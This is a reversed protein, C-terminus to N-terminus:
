EKRQLLVASVIILGKVVYRAFPSIGLLNLINNIIGLILVGFLTGIVSGEGGFLNTGGIIVCAIADLEYFQGSNPSATNMRACVIIGAVASLVGSLVYVVNKYRSINIGSLYAVNPAGGIAVVYRGFVSRSYLLHGVIVTGLFILTPIPLLGLSGQGIQAFFPNTGFIPHGSTYWLALGRIMIMTGLTAIFPTVKGKTILVGNLLGMTAGVGLAVMIVAITGHAQFSLAVVGVLGVISGVSLDIGASLIVFTMGVAIVGIISVQRLINLLNTTTFFVPSAFSAGITISLFVIQVRYHIWIYQLIFFLTRFSFDKISITYKKEENSNANMKAM